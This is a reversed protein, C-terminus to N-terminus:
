ASCKNLFVFTPKLTLRSDSYKLSGKVTSKERETEGVRERERERDERRGNMFMSPTEV